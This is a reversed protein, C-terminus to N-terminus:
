AGPQELIEDIALILQQNKEANLADRHPSGFQGLDNDFYQGTANSFESSLAARVLIDAGVGIDKGDIGYADKVMKSALLSGPNVAIITPGNNGISRAMYTSWMTIALKSQAYAQNDDLPQKGALADLSVPSQAASSLNVVRGDAPILPLLRKTLLYPALTNVVFRIDFGEETRTNPVKFVGANNILVDLTSHAKTIATALTEVYTIKSLDARYSEIQGAGDVGQLLKATAALKEDSRGHILLRHGDAALLKATELGIGDTAGTLLITKTM